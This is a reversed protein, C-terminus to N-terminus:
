QKRFLGGYATSNGSSRDDGAVQVVVPYYNTRVFDDFANQYEGSTLAHREKMENKKNTYVMLYDGFPGRTFFSIDMGNKSTPLSAPGDIPTSETYDWSLPSKEWIGAYLRERGGYITAWRLYYGNTKAWSCMNKFEGYDINHRAQFPVSGKEFVAAFVADNKRNIGIVGGGTATIVIPHYGDRVKEDFYTQYRQASIGHTAVWDVSKNDKTWVSAYKIEPNGSTRYASLSTLRFGKKSLGNPNDFQFQHQQSSIDHFASFEIFTAAAETPVTGRNVKSPIRERLRPDTPIRPRELVPSSQVAGTENIRAPIRQQLRDRIIQANVSNSFLCSGAISLSGISGLLFLLNLTTHFAKM